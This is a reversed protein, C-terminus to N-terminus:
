QNPVVSCQSIPGPVTQPDPIAQLAQVLHSCTLPPLDASASPAFVLTLTTLTMVALSVLLRKMAYKSLTSSRDNTPVLERVLTAAGRSRRVPGLTGATSPCGVFRGIVAASMHASMGIDAGHSETGCPSRARRSAWPCENHLPRDSRLDLLSRGTCLAAPGGADGVVTLPGNSTNGLDIINSGSKDRTRIWACYGQGGNSHYTGPKIDSGVVWTGDGFARPPPPTYTVGVTRVHTAVTRIVTPRATVTARVTASATVTLTSTVTPGPTAENKTSGASAAGMGIGLLAAV